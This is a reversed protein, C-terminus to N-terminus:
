SLFLTILAMVGATVLFLAACLGLAAACVQLIEKPTAPPLPPRIGELVNIKVM